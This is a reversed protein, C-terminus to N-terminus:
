EEKWGQASENTRGGCFVFNREEGGRKGELGRTGSDRSLFRFVASFYAASFAIAFASALFTELALRLTM